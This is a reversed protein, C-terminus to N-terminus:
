ECCVDLVYVTITVTCDHEEGAFINTVISFYTAVFEVRVLM